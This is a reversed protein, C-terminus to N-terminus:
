THSLDQLYIYWDIYQEIYPVSIGKKYAFTIFRHTPCIYGDQLYIYWDIHPVSIGMKDQLCIYQEIYLVSIGTKYAFTSFRHTPRIYGDQLCHCRYSTVYVKEICQFTNCRYQSSHMQLCISWEIKQQVLAVM